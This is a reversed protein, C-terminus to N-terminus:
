SAVMISQASKKLEHADEYFGVNLRGRKPGLDKDMILLCVPADILQM